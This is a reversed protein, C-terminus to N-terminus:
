HGSCCVSAQVSSNAGAVNGVAVSAGLLAALASLLAATRRAATRSM